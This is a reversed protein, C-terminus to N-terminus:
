NKIKKKKPSKSKIFELDIRKMENEKRIGNLKEAKEM